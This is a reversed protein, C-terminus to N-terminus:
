FFVINILFFYFPDPRRRAGSGLNPGTGDGEEDPNDLGLQGAKDLEGTKWPLNLTQLTSAEHTALTYKSM